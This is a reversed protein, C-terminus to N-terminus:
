GDGRRALLWSMEADEECALVSLAPFATALEGPHLLYDANFGPHRQLRGTHFTAYFLRGGPALVGALWPFLRRDLFRVVMVLDFRVGADLPPACADAVVRDLVAGRRSAEAGAIRLGEVSVDLATMRWGAGALWLSHAATGCALELGRGPAGLHRANRELFPEVQFRRPGDHALYKRNWRQADPHM